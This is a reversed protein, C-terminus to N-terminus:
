PINSEDITEGLVDKAFAIGEQKTVGTLLCVAGQYVDYATQPITFFTEIAKEASWYSKNRKIYQMRSIAALFEAEAVICKVYAGGQERLPIFVGHMRFQNQQLTDLFDIDKINRRKGLATRSYCLKRYASKKNYFLLEEEWFTIIRPVEKRAQPVEIILYGDVVAGATIASALVLTTM